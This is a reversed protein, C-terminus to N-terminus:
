GPECSVGPEREFDAAPNALAGYGYRGSHELLTRDDPLRSSSREVLTFKAGGDLFVAIALSLISVDKFRKIV